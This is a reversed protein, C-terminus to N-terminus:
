RRALRLERGPWRARLWRDHSAIVIATPRTGFASELEDALVPSLHNTPEDLLLLEPPDALLLALGLRRRQGASLEGVPVTLDGPALLGLSRLPVAEARDAGLTAEYIQRATRGPRDFVTDQPLWGVRLGRRRQLEGEPTIRGALVALLTSKGAGNPGTVLV